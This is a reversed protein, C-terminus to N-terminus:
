SKNDPNDPKPRRAWARIWVVPIKLAELALLRWEHGSGQVIPSSPTPSTYAVLNGARAELKLRAMHFGDSVLLM